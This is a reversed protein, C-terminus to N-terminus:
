VIYYSVNCSGISDLYQLPDDHTSRVGPSASSFFIHTEAYPSPTADRVYKLATPSCFNYKGISGTDSQAVSEWVSCSFPFFFAIERMIAM